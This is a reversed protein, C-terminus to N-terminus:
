PGGKRYRLFAVLLLTLAIVPVVEYEPILTNGAPEFVMVYFKADSLTVNKPHEILIGDDPAWTGARWDQVMADTGNWTVGSPYSCYKTEGSLVILGQGHYQVESILRGTSERIAITANEGRASVLIGSGGYYRLSYNTDTRFDGFQLSGLDFPLDGIDFSFYTGNESIEISTQNLAYVRFEYSNNTPVSQTDKSDVSGITLDRPIFLVALVFAILIGACVMLGRGVPKHRKEFRS